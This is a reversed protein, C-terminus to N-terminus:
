LSWVVVEALASVRAMGSALQPPGRIREPIATVRTLLPEATPMDGSLGSLGLARGM